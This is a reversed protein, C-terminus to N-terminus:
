KKGFICNKGLKTKTTAPEEDESESETESDEVELEGALEFQSSEANPLSSRTYSQRSSKKGSQPPQMITFTAYHLM